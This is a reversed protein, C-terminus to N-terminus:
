TYSYTPSIHRAAIPVGKAWLKAAQVHIMSIIKVTMLPHRLTMRAISIDTLPRREGHFHTKLVPRDRERFNVGIVLRAGPPIGHFGYTGKPATFPSVYLEKSCTQAISGDDSATPIVYSKREGVTNSVEYIMAGVAGADDRCFYVSLPNFAYGFLRPFCVLDIRSGFHSLGVDRLVLRAKDSIREAGPPGLDRDHLSLVNRRNHSFLRLSQDLQDIEDVDLCLTFVRYSFGHPKPALRKHVVTGEYLCSRFPSM